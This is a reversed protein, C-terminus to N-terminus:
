LALRARRERPEAVLDMQQALVAPRAVEGPDIPDAAPLVAPELDLAPPPELARARHGRVSGSM